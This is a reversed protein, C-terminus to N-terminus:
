EVGRYDAFRHRCSSFELGLHCQVLSPGFDPFHIDPPINWFRNGMGQCDNGQSKSETFWCWCPPKSPM